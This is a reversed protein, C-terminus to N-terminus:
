AVKVKGEIGYRKLVENVATEVEDLVRPDEVGTLTWSMRVPKALGPLAEQGGTDIAQLRRVHERLERTSWGAELAENLLHHADASDLAAVELHHAWSLGERRDAPPFKAAVRKCREVTDHEFGLDALRRRVAAAGTSTANGDPDTEFHQHAYILWDGIWWPTSNIASRLTTGIDAWQDITVDNPIALVTTGYIPEAPVAVGTAVEVSATLDPDGDDPSVHTM